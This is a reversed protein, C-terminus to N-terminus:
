NICQVFNSNVIESNNLDIISLGVTPRVALWM